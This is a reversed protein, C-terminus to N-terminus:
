IGTPRRKSLSNSLHLIKQIPYKYCCLPCIEQSPIVGCHLNVGNIKVSLTAAPARLGPNLYLISSALKSYLQGDAETAGIQRLVVQSHTWSLEFARDRLHRDQYKDILVQNNERTDAIGTVMDIIATEGPLLNISYQISVIPDLVSGKSGSLPQAQDMAQPDVLTYGRGIFKSRDTEYSVENVEAGNVKM